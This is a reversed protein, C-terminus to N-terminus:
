LPRGITCDMVPLAAVPIIRAVRLLHLRRFLGIAKTLLRGRRAQFEPDSAAREIFLEFIDAGFAPEVALDRRSLRRVQRVTIWNLSTWMGVPDPVAKSGAIWPWLLRQTLARSFLTPLNFHPEYPFAYNPCVFRHIGGPKLARHVGRLVQAVDAVHEMVNLSFAFDFHGDLALAEGPIRLVAPVAGRSAAHDLVIAQLRTFHSFGAGTPEIATVEHGERQLICSLMFSGAGVELVRAARGLRRLDRDILARGFRAEGAYIAFIASLEPATRLVIQGIEDLLRDGELFAPRTPADM